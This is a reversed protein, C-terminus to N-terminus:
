AQSELPSSCVCSTIANAHTVVRMHLCNPGFYADSTGGHEAHGDITRWSRSPACSRSAMQEDRQVKNAPDGIELLYRSRLQRKKTNRRQASLKHNSHVYTRLQGVRRRNVARTHLLSACWQVTSVNLVSAVHKAPDSHFEVQSLALHAEATLDPPVIGGNAWGCGKYRVLDQM